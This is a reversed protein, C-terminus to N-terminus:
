HAFQSRSRNHQQQPWLLLHHRLRRLFPLVYAVQLVLWLRSLAMLAGSDVAAPRSSLRMIVLVYLDPYIQTQPLFTLLHNQRISCCASLKLDDHHRHDVLLVLLLFSLHRLRHRFQLTSCYRSVVHRCMQKSPRVRGCRCPGERGYGFCAYLTRSLSIRSQNRPLGHELM